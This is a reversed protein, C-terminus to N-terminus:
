VGGRMCESALPNLLRLYWTWTLAKTTTEYGALLLSMLKDRLLQDTMGMGTQEDRALYLSSFLDGTNYFYKKRELIIDDM